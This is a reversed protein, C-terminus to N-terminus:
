KQRANLTGHCNDLPISAPSNDLPRPLLHSWCELSHRFAPPPSLHVASSPHGVSCTKKIMKYRMVKYVTCHIPLRTIWKAQYLCPKHSTRHQATYYYLRQRSLSSVRSVPQAMLYVNSLLHQGVGDLSPRCEAEVQKIERPKKKKM